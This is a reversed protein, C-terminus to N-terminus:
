DRRDSQSPESGKRHKPKPPRHAKMFSEFIGVQEESLVAAIESRHQDRLDKRASRREHHHKELLQTFESQQAENLQLESFLANWDPKLPKGMPAEALAVTTGLTFALALGLQRLLALSTNM